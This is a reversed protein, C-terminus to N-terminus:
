EKEGYLYAKIGDENGQDVALSLEKVREKVKSFYESRYILGWEGYDQKKLSEDWYDAEKGDLDTLLFIEIQKKAQFYNEEVLFMTILWSSCDVNTQWSWANEIIHIPYTGTLINKFNFDANILENCIEKYEDRYKVETQWPEEQLIKNM